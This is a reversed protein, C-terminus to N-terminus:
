ASRSQPARSAAGGGSSAGDHGPEPPVVREVRHPKEAFGKQEIQQGQYLNQKLPIPVSQAGGQFLIQGEKCKQGCDAPYDEVGAAPLQILLAREM